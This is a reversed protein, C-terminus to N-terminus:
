FIECIVEGGLRRKKAENGTMIGASTSVVATGFGSNVRPLDAANMYVRRGPKSIRKINHMVPEGNQYRIVLRLSGFGDSIEEVSTLYGADRLIKAIWLKQNSRPVLVESKRAMAGNRIRTLMDAIPDTM